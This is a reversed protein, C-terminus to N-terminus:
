LDYLLIDNFDNFTDDSVRNACIVKELDYLQGAVGFNVVNICLTLFQRFWIWDSVPISPNKWDPM